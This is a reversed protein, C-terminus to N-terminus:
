VASDAPFISFLVNLGYEQLDIERLCKKSRIDYLAIHTPKETDHFVHKIWNIKERFKTKRVLTFGVWIHREDVILLGRCWGLLARESNDIQKLDIVEVIQLSAPDVIVITGDVTTFYLRDKYLHGDHVVLSSLEIRKGPVTLCVADGLDGRTVWIESGVHFVHNPHARHPKTTAVRRYDTEKSFREWPDGGLVNWQRTVKGALDFEVVMDLGTSAVLLNGNTGRAVHHVDNFCPLSVYGVRKFDPLEYVLVETGTCVYFIGGVLTGSKFLFSPLGDSPRAEAPSEYEVCVSASGKPVSVKLILAKEYLNWEEEQRILKQRQRGGTVFLSEMGEKVVPQFHSGVCRRLIRRSYLPRDSESSRTSV